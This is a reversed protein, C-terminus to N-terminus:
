VSFTISLLNKFIHHDWLSCCLNKNATWLQKNVTVRSIQSCDGEYAFKFLKKSMLKHFDSVSADSEPNHGTTTNLRKTIIGTDSLNCREFQLAHSRCQYWYCLDNSIIIRVTPHTCNTKGKKATQMFTLFSKITFNYTDYLSLTPLKEYACLSYKYLMIDCLQNQVVEYCRFGNRETMLLLEWM